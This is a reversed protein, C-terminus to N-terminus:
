KRRSRHLIPAFLGSVMEVADCVGVTAQSRCSWRLFPWMLCHIKDSRDYRRRKQQVPGCSPLSEIRAPQSCRMRASDREFFFPSHWQGHGAARGGHRRKSFLQWLKKVKSKNYWIAKNALYGWSFRNSGVYNEILGRSTSVGIFINKSVCKDIHIDWRHCGSSFAISGHVTNWKKNVKNCVTMAQVDLSLNKGCFQRSFCLAMETRQDIFAIDSYCAVETKDHLNELRACVRVRCPTSPDLGFMTFAAPASESSTFVTEFSESGLSVASHKVAPSESASITSFQLEYKVARWRQRLWGLIHDPSVSGKSNFTQRPADNQQQPQGGNRQSEDLERDVKSHRHDPDEFVSWAVSVTRATVNAVCLTPAWPLFPQLSKQNLLGNSAQTPRPSTAPSSEATSTVTSSPGSDTADASLDLRDHYSQQKAPSTATKESVASPVTAIQREKWKLVHARLIDTSSLLKALSRLYRSALTRGSRNSSGQLLEKRHRVYYLTSINHNGVLNVYVEGLFVGSRTATSSKSRGDDHGEGASFHLPVLGRTLCIHSLYEVMKRALVCMATKLLLNRTQVLVLLVNQFRQSELVCLEAALFFRINMADAKHFGHESPARDCHARASPAAGFFKMQRLAAPEVRYGLFPADPGVTRLLTPGCLKTSSLEGFNCSSIQFLLTLANHFTWLSWEVLPQSLREKGTAHPSQSPSHFGFVQQLAADVANSALASATGFFRIHDGDSIRRNGIGDQGLVNATLSERAALGSVFTAEHLLDNFKDASSRGFALRWRVCDHRRHNGGPGRQINEAAGVVRLLNQEAEAVADSWARPAPPLRQQQDNGVMPSVDSVQADPQLGLTLVRVFVARLSDRSGTSLNVAMSGLDIPLNVERVLQQSAQVFLSFNSCIDDVEAICQRERVPALGKTLDTLFINLANQWVTASEADQGEGGVLLSELIDVLMSRANVHLALEEVAIALIHLEALSSVSVITRFAETFSAANYGRGDWNQRQDCVHYQAGPRVFGCNCSTSTRLGDQETDRSPLQSRRLGSQAIMHAAVQEATLTQGPQVGKMPPMDTARPVSRVRVCQLPNRLTQLADSDFAIRDCSTIWAPNQSLTPLKRQELVCVCSRVSSADLQDAHRGGHLKPINWGMITSLTAAAVATAAARDVSLPSDPDKDHGSIVPEFISFVSCVATDSQFLTDAFYEAMMEPAPIGDSEDFDSMDTSESSTSSSDSSGMSRSTDDCVAQGSATTTPGDIPLPRQHGLTPGNSNTQEIIWNIARAEDGNVGEAMTVQQALHPPFGMGILTIALSAVSARDVTSGVPRISECEKTELEVADAQTKTETLLRAASIGEANVNGEDVAATSRRLQRPSAAAASSSGGSSSSLERRHRRKLVSAASPSGSDASAADSSQLEAGCLLSNIMSISTTLGTASARQQAATETTDLPRPTDQEDAAVHADGSAKALVDPDNLLDVLNRSSDHLSSSRVHGTLDDSSRSRARSAPQLAFLVPKWHVYLSPVDRSRNRLVPNSHIQTSGLDPVSTGAVERAVENAGGQVGQRLKALRRPPAFRFPTEGFNFRVSQGMNLSVAPHLVGAIRLHVFAVGLDKGNCFFTVWSGHKSSASNPAPANNDTGSTGRGTGATNGATGEVGADVGADLTNSSGLDVMCGIVDGVKWRHGYTTASTNWKKCRLGDYAWSHSHDGVGRGRRSHGNYLKDAWGIQMLGPSLVTAEYYWCGSGPYLALNDCWATPFNSVSTLSLDHVEMKGSLVRFRVLTSSLLDMPDRPISVPDANSAGKELPQPAGTSLRGQQLGIELRMFHVLASMVRRTMYGTLPRILRSMHTRFNSLISASTGFGLAQVDGKVRDIVKELPVAGLSLLQALSGKELWASLFALSSTAAAAGDGISTGVMVNALAGLVTSRLRAMASAPHLLNHKETENMGSAFGSSLQGLLTRWSRTGDLMRLLIGFPVKGALAGALTAADNRLTNPMDPKVVLHHFPVNVVVSNEWREVKGMLAGAPVCEARTGVSQLSQLLMPVVHTLFYPKRSVPLGPVQNPIHVAAIKSLRDVALVRGSIGAANDSGPSEGYVLDIGACTRIADPLVRVCCDPSISLCAVAALQTGGALADFVGVIPGFTSHLHVSPATRASSAPQFLSSVSREADALRELVYPAVDFMSLRLCSRQLQLLGARLPLVENDLVPSVFIQSAVSSCADSSNVTNAVTLTCAEQVQRIFATSLPNATNGRQKLELLKGLLSVARRAVQPLSTSTLVGLLMALFPEDIFARRWAMADPTARFGALVCHQVLVLLSDCCEDAVSSLGEITPGVAHLISCAAVADACAAHGTWLQVANVESLCECRSCNSLTWNISKKQASSDVFSVDPMADGFQVWLSRLQTHAVNTTDTATQVNAIASTALDGNLLVKLELSSQSAAQVPNSRLQICLHYWRRPSLTATTVVDISENPCNVGHNWCASAAIRGDACLNITACLTRSVISCIHKESPIAESAAANATAGDCKSFGSEQEPTLRGSEERCVGQQAHAADDNSLTGTTANTPTPGDGSASVIRLDSDCCRIWFAVVYDNSIADTTCPPPSAKAQMRLLQAFGRSLPIRAFSSGNIVTASRMAPRLKLRSAARTHLAGCVRALEERLLRVFGQAPHIGATQWPSTATIEMPTYMEVFFYRILKHAARISELQRISETLRTTWSDVNSSDFSKGLRECCMSCHFQEVNWDCLALQRDYVSAPQKCVDKGAHNAPILLLLDFLARLCQFSGNAFWLGSPSVCHAALQATGASTESFSPFSQSVCKSAASAFASHPAQTRTLASTNHEETSHVGGLLQKLIAMRLDHQQRALAPSRRWVNPKSLRPLEVVFAQRLKMVACAVADRAKSSCGQLHASALDNLTRSVNFSHSARGQSAIRAKVHGTPPKAAGAPPREGHNRQQYGSGLQEHHRQDESRRDITDSSASRGRSGSRRHGGREGKAPVDGHADGVFGLTDMEQLQKSINELIAIKSSESSVACFLFRFLTLGSVRIQARQQKLALVRAIYRVDSDDLLFDLFKMTEIVISRKQKTASSCDGSSGTFIDDADRMQPELSFPTPSDDGNVRGLPTSPSTGDRSRVRPVAGLPARAGLMPSSPSGDDFKPDVVTDTGAVDRSSQWECMVSLLLELDQWRDSPLASSRLWKRLHQNINANSRNSQFDSMDVSFRSSSAVAASIEALLKCKAVIRQPLDNISSPGGSRANASRSRVVGGSRDRNSAQAVSADSGATNLRSSNRSHRGAASTTNRHGATHTAGSARMACQRLFTTVSNATMWTRLLRHTAPRPEASRPTQRGKTGLPQSATGPRVPSASPSRRAAAASAATSNGIPARSGSSQGKTAGTASTGRLEGDSKKLHAVLEMAERALLGNCSLDFAFLVGTLARRVASWQENHPVDGPSACPSQTRTRTQPSLPISPTTSGSSHGRARSNDTVSSASPSPQQHTFDSEASKKEMGLLAQDLLSADSDHTQLTEDVTSSVDRTPTRPSTGVSSFRSVDRESRSAVSDSLSAGRADFLFFQRLFALLAPEKANQAHNHGATRSVGNAVEVGERKFLQVPKLGPSSSQGVSSRPPRGSSVFPSAPASDDDHESSVAMGRRTARSRSRNRSRSARGKSSTRMESPSISAPEDSVGFASSQRNSRARSLSVPTTPLPKEASDATGDKHDRSPTTSRAQLGATPVAGEPIRVAINDGLHLTPGDERWHLVKGIDAVSGFGAAATERATVDDGHTVHRFRVATALGEPDCLFDSCMFPELRRELDSVPPGYIIVAAFKAALGALGDVVRRLWTHLPKLRRRLTQAVSQEPGTDTCATLFREHEAVCQHLRDAASTLKVVSPLISTVLKPSAPGLDFCGILSFLLRDVFSQQLKSLLRVFQSCKFQLFQSSQCSKAPTQEHLAVLVDFAAVSRLLVRRCHLQVCDDLVGISAPELHFSAGPGDPSESCGRVRPHHETWISLLQGQLSELLGNLVGDNRRFAPLTQLFETDSFLAPADLTSLRIPAHPTSPAGNANGTVINGPGLTDENTSSRAATLRAYDRFNLWVRELVDKLVISLQSKGFNDGHVFVHRLLSAVSEEESLRKLIANLMIPHVRNSRMMLHQLLDRRAAPTSYFVEFGCRIANAAEQVLLRQENSDLDTTVAESAKGVRSAQDGQASSTARVANPSGSAPASPQFAETEAVLTHHAVSGESDFPTEILRQLVAHLRGTIALWEADGRCVKHITPEHLLLAKLNAQLMFLCCMVIRWRSRSPLAHTQVDPGPVNAPMHGPTANCGVAGGDAQTKRGNLIATPSCFSIIDCLTRLTGVSSEICYAAWPTSVPTPQGDKSVTPNLCWPPTPEASIGVAVASARHVSADDAQTDARRHQAGTGDRVIRKKSLSAAKHILPTHLVSLKGLLLFITEVDDIVKLPRKDTAAASDRLPTSHDRLIDDFNFHTKVSVFKPNDSASSIRSRFLKPGGGSVHADANSSEIKSVADHVDGVRAPSRKPSAVNESRLHSSPLKQVLVMSYKDGAAIHIARLEQEVLSRVIKPSLQDLEDGHGLRGGDGQGWTFLLGGPDCIAMSHECGGEAYVVRYKELARVLQPAPAPDVTGHGLKGNHGAGWTYLKGTDTIAMSHDWGCHVSVICLNRFPHEIQQPLLCREPVPVIGLVPPVSVSSRKDKYGAGFAFAQGHQTCALSHEWGGAMDVVVAGALATISRPEFADTRNGLGCQGQNNKGWAFARGAHDIALSHSAGCFIKVIRPTVGNATGAADGNDGPLNLASAVNGADGSVSNGSAAFFVQVPLPQDDPAGNGLRGNAGNGWAFVGGSRSLVVTHGLGCAVDCIRTHPPITRVLRPLEEQRSSGHGLRFRDGNGWSYLDGSESVALSHTSLSAVAVTGVFRLQEVVAPLLRSAGQSGGSASARSGAAAAAALAANSRGHGLKGHDEKGFTFVMGSDHGARKMSAADLWWAFSSAQKNNEPSAPDEMVAVAARLDAIFPKVFFTATRGGHGEGLGFLLLKDSEKGQEFCRYETDLTQLLLQLASLIGALSGQKIAVGVMSALAVHAIEHTPPSQGTRSVSRLTNEVVPEPAVSRNRLYDQGLTTSVATSAGSLVSASAAASNSVTTNQRSGGRDASAGAAGSGGGSGGSDADVSVSGGSAVAGQSAFGVNGSAPQDVAIQETNDRKRPAGEVFHNTVTSRLMNVVSGVVAEQEKLQEVASEDHAYQQRSAPHQKQPRGDEGNSRNLDHLRRVADPEACLGLCPVRELIQPLQSVMAVLIRDSGARTMTLLLKFFLKTSLLAAISQEGSGFSRSAVSEITAQIRHSLAASHNAREMHQQKSAALTEEEGQAPSKVAEVQSPRNQGKRRRGGAKASAGNAGATHSSVRSSRARVASQGANGGSSSSGGLPSTSNLVKDEEVFYRARRAVASIHKCHLLFARKDVPPPVSTLYDMAQRAAEAAQMAWYGPSEANQANISIDDLCVVERQRAGLSAFPTAAGQEPAATGSDVASGRDARTSLTDALVSDVYLRAVEAFQQEVYEDSGLRSADVQVAEAVKSFSPSVQNGM